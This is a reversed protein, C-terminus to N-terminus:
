KIYQLYVIIIPRVSEINSVFYGILGEDSVHFFELVGTPLDSTISVREVKRCIRFDVVTVQAIPIEKM